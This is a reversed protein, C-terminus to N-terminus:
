AKRAEMALRPFRMLDYGRLETREAHTMRKPPAIWYRRREPRTERYAIMSRVEGSATLTELMQAIAAPSGDFVCALIAATYSRGPSMHDRLTDLSLALKHKRPRM